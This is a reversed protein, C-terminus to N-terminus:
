SPSSDSLSYENMAGLAWTILAGVDLGTLVLYRVYMGWAPVFRM